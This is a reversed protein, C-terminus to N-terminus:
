KGARGVRDAHKTANKAAKERLNKGQNLIPAASTRHKRRLNEDQRRNLEAVTQGVQPGSPTGGVHKDIKSRGALSQLTKRRWVIDDVDVVDVCAVLADQYSYVGDDAIDRAIKKARDLDDRVSPVPQKLVLAGSQLRKEVDGSMHEYETRWKAVHERASPIQADRSLPTPDLLWDVPVDLTEAFKQLADGRPPPKGEAAERRWKNVTDSSLGPVLQAPKKGARESLLKLRQEFPSLEAFPREPSVPM